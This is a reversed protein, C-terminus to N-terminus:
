LKALISKFHAYNEVIGDELDISIRAEALPRLREEFKELEFRQERLWSGEKGVLKADAREIRKQIEQQARQVDVHIHSLTDENWRHMYVLAKFSNKAGADIMWYIPRKQYIKVHDAYFGRLFYQRLSERADGYTKSIGQAIFALNEELHEPGFASSIFSEIDHIIDTESDPKDSVTVYESHYIPLDHRWSYRGLICGVVFSLFGRMDRSFDARRVSIAADPVSPDLDDGTGYIEAFLRNISEEHSKLADFRQEAELKWRECADSLRSEGYKCLPHKEFHWSTEFADWDEKALAICAKVHEIIQPRRTEDVIIPLSAIHGTEYNVTPSIFGLISKSVHSNAFGLLYYMDEDTKCFVSCGSVDFLFGQPYYRFAVDGSSIKSWSFCPRFYYKPNKVVFDPTKLYPYKTLVSEKIEKGDYQYNVIYEHNGYWKRFKGGKNYPFWKIQSQIATERELDFGINKRDIEYWRRLYKKNDTTALGQRADALRSLSIGTKYSQIHCPLAWYALPIGPFCSFVSADTQYHCNTPMSGDNDDDIYMETKMQAQEQLKRIAQLCANGQVTMDGKFEELRFYDGPLSSQTNQLVFACVDVTADKFFAGKAMQVLSHISKEQIIYRRLPEYSEIFMWVNPTMLGSYGEPLCFDFNRAMFISFLDESYSKYYKKVFKKLDADYKNLYPPNTVVAAYKRSLIDIVQATQRYLPTQAFNDSINKDRKEGLEHASGLDDGQEMWVDMCKRFYQADEDSFQLMAGLMSGQQLAEFFPSQQNLIHIMDKSFTCDQVAYVHPVVPHEFFCPDYQRAKTMLSFHALQTMRTDIDLGFLNHTLINQVANEIAYGCELYIKVLVDFAYLLFHGTGVCPDLVTLEQPRISMRAVHSTEVKPILWSLHRWIQSEPHHDLWYRGVTNDVIYRVVWDTTFIQTAAPIDEKDITKGYLPDVISERLPLIYYQYLWGVIEIQGEKTRLDFDSAPIMEVLRKITGENDLLNDPLLLEFAEDELAFFEPFISGLRHCLHLFHSRFQAKKFGNWAFIGFDLNQNPMQPQFHGDQTSFIRQGEPLFGNVELLRIACLRTFWLCAASEITKQVGIKQIGECLSQWHVIDEPALTEPPTQFRNDMVATLGLTEARCSIQTVLDHLALKAFTQLESKHM